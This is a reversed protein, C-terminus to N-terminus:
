GRIELPGETTDVITGTQGARSWETSEEGEGEGREEEARTETSYLYAELLDDHFTGVFKDPINEVQSANTAYSQTFATSMANIPTIPSIVADHGGTAEPAHAAGERTNGVGVVVSLGIGPCAFEVFERGAAPELLLGVHPPGPEIYGLRGKLTNVEIEGEGKGASNCPFTDILMCEKFLASVRAVEHAGVVEGSSRESQCEVAIPGGFIVPEPQECHTPGKPLRYSNGDVGICSIYEGSLISPTTSEGTFRPGPVKEFRGRHPRSSKITCTDNLYEGGSEAECGM